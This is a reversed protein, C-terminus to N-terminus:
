SLTVDGIIKAGDAVFAKEDIKPTKITINERLDSKQM